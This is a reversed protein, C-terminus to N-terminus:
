KLLVKVTQTQAGSTVVAYYVGQKQTLSITNNGKSVKSNLVRNGALDYLSVNADRVSLIYLSRGNPIVTLGQAKPISIIPSGGPISAPDCQSLSTIIRPCDSVETESRMEFCGGDICGYPNGPDPTCAGWDCIGFGYGGPPKGEVWTGGECQKGDDPSKSQGSSPVNIYVAGDQVCEDRKGNQIAWCSKAWQCFENPNGYGGNDV